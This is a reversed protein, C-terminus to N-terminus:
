FLGNVHRLSCRSFTTECEYYVYLRRCCGAGTNMLTMTDVSNPLIAQHPAPGRWASPIGRTGPTFVTLRRNGSRSTIKRLLTTIM